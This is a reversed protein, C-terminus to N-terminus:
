LFSVNEGRNPVYRQLQKICAEVRSKDRKKEVEILCRDCLSYYEKAMEMIMKVRRTDFVLVSFM